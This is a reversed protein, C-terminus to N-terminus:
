MRMEHTSGFLAPIQMREALTDRAISSLVVHSSELFVVTKVKRGKTADIVRHLKELEHCQRKMPDSDYAMLGIVRERPVFNGHGVDLMTSAMKAAM